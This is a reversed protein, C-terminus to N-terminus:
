VALIPLLLLCLLKLQKMSEAVIAQKDELRLAM